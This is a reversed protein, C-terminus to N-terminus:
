KGDCELRVRLGDLSSESRVGSAGLPMHDELAADLSDAPVIALGAESLAALALEALETPRVWLEGQGDPDIEHRGYGDANKQFMPVFAAAVREVLDSM